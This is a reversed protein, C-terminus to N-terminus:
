NQLRDIHSCYQFVRVVHLMCRGYRYIGILSRLLICGTMHWIYSIYHTHTDFCKADGSFLVFTSVITDIKNKLIVTTYVAGILSDTCTLYEWKCVRHALYFVFMQARKNSWVWCTSRPTQDLRIKKLYRGQPSLLTTVFLPRCWSVRQGNCCRKLQYVCSIVLWVVWRLLLRKPLFM